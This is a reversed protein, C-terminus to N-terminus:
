RLGPLVNQRQWLDSYPEVGKGYCHIILSKRTAGERRTRHADPRELWPREGADPCQERRYPRRV